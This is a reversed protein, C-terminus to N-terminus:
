VIEMMVGVANAVSVASESDGSRRWWAAKGIEGCWRRWEGAEKVVM